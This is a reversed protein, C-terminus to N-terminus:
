QWAFRAIAWAPAWTASTACTSAMRERCKLTVTTADPFDDPLHCLVFNAIGPVVERIGVSRLGTVLEERLVHTEAYRAAYYEPDQLAFVAAVQAPLSVAYPPM